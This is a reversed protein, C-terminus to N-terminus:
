YFFNGGSSIACRERANRIRITIDIRCIVAFYILVFFVVAQGERQTRGVEIEHDGGEFRGARHESLGGGRKKFVSRNLLRM